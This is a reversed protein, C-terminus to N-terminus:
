VHALEKLYKDLSSICDGWGDSYNNFMTTAMAENPYNSIGSHEIVLHTGHPTESLEWCVTTEVDGIGSVIWTFVLKTVPKVELVKGTITTEEHTFKYDYGEVPKYDAKIFWDTIEYQDTIAKWVEIGRKYTHEKRLLDKM